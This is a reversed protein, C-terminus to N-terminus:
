AGHCGITVRVRLRPRRVWRLDYAVFALTVAALVFSGWERFAIWDVALSM